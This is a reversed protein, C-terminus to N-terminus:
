LEARVLQKRGSLIPVETEIPNDIWEALRNCSCPAVIQRKPGQRDHSTKSMSWRSDVNEFGNTPGPQADPAHWPGPTTQSQAIHRARSGDM